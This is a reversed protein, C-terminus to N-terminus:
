NKTKCVIDLEAKQFTWNVAEISYGKDAMLKQAIQEGREGIENHEALSLEIKSKLNVPFSIV